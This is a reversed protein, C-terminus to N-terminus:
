GSSTDVLLDAAARTGEQDFLRDEADMWHLWHERAAVGDRELGRALRVDRPAEVWVVTNVLSRWARNGSGVGELVLLPSPAVQHTERLEGSAWDWRRYTGALGRALPELLRLVLPDLEALGDWGPYIDDLHVVHGEDCGALRAVEAIQAALTTKGSGAPGDVCILRGSGLRPATSWAHAVVDAATPAPARV